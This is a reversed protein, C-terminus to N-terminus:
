ESIKEVVWEVADEGADQKLKELIKVIQELADVKAIDQKRVIEVEKLTM